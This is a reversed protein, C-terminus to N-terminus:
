RGRGPMPAVPVSATIADPGAGSTMGAPSPMADLAVGAWSDCVNSVVAVVVNECGVLTTPGLGSSRVPAGGVPPGGAEAAGPAASGGGCSWSIARPPTSTFPVGM